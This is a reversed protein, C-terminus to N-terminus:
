DGATRAPLAMRVAGAEITWTRSRVPGSLDGDANCWFEEGSVSVRKARIFHVDSREHHTGRRLHVAYLLRALPPVAFSLVVDALGDTPSADPALATGGGVHSGNAVGAQLLHRRGDAVVRGDAEVRLRLGSTKVGAIVAGVAYGGKGLRAKWPKAERGAEAGVGVHVANIVIGGSDDVLLDVATPTATLVLRAAEEPDLPIGTGRAFDNGTGVPILGVVPGSLDALERLTAVVAHLSGDGGAVVVDRDDRAQLARTLDDQDATAEVDVTASERLCSVAREASEDDNSGADANTILLIRQVVPM